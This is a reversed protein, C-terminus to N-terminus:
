DPLSEAIYEVAVVRAGPKHAALRAVALAAAQGIDDALVVFEEEDSLVVLFGSRRQLPPGELEAPREPAPPEGPVPRPEPAPTVPTPLPTAPRTPPAEASRWRAPIGRRKRYARVNEATVGALEAVEADPVVGILHLFPDMRSVRVIKMPRWGEPIAPLPKPEPAPETGPAPVPEPAPAPTPVLEPSREFMPVQRAKRHTSPAPIRRRSRYQRVNSSSVGALRAVEEDPLIGVKDLFPDLRSRRVVQIPDGPRARRRQKRRSPAAGSPHSSTVEPPPAEIQTRRRRRSAATSAEPPAPAEPAPAVSPASPPNRSELFRALATKRRRTSDPM